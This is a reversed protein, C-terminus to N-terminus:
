TDFRFYYWNDKIKELETFGYQGEKNLEGPFYIFGQYTGSISLGGSRYTYSVANEVPTNIEVQIGKYEKDVVIQSYLESVNKELETSNELVYQFCEEKFQKIKSQTSIWGYIFLSVVMIMIIVISIFISQIIKKM